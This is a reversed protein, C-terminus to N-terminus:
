PASVTHRNGRKGTDVVQVGREFQRREAGGHQATGCRGVLGVDPQMAARMQGLQKAGVDVAAAAIGRQAEGRRARALAQVCEIAGIVAAPTIVHQEFARGAVVQDRHGARLPEVVAAGVGDDGPEVVHRPPALQFVGDGVLLRQEVAQDVRNGVQDVVLAEVAVVEAAVAREAGEGIAVVHAAAAIAFEVDLLAEFAAVAIEVLLHQFGAHRQSLLFPPEALVAAAGVEVHQARGIDARVAGR